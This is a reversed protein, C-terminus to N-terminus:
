NLGLYRQILPELRVGRANKDVVKGERDLLWVTPLSTIKYLSHYSVTAESGKDLRQPWDVKQRKLIELVHEKESDGNAAIGIVEFGKDRYKDYLAKVDPMENICPGCRISWFDILVVKGRMTKLDIKNGDMSTFTMELPKTVEFGRLAELAKLNEKAMTHVAKIGKQNANSNNSDTIELFYQLYTEKLVPSLYQRSVITILQEIFLAMEELDPYKFLLTKLRLRFSEWYYTDFREWYTSEMTNKQLNLYEYLLLAIRLDRGMLSIEIKAKQELTADSELFKVVLENGKKLWRDRAAMDIPLARLQSLFFDRNTKTLKSDQNLVLATSDPIKNSIFKPEFLYHFFYKLVDYYHKDNPHKDLFAEALQLRKKEIEDEFRRQELFTSNYYRDLEKPSQCFYTKITDVEIWDKEAQSNIETRKNLNSIDKNNQPCVCYPLCIQLAYFLIISKLTM